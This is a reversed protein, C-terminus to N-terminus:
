DGEVARMAEARPTRALEARVESGSRAEGLLVLMEILRSRNRIACVARQARRSLRGAKAGALALVGRHLSALEGRRHAIAQGLREGARDSAHDSPHDKKM